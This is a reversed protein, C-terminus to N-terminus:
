PAAPTDAVAAEVVFVDAADSSVAADGIGHSAEGCGPLLPAATWGCLWRALQKAAM